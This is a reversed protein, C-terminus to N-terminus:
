DRCLHGWVDDIRIRAGLLSTGQGMVLTIQRGQNWVRQCRRPRQRISKARQTPQAKWRCGWGRSCVGEPLVLLSPRGKAESHESRM